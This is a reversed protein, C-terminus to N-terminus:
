LKSRAAQRRRRQPVPRPAEEVPPTAGSETEGAAVIANLHEQSFRVYHGLKTHPIEGKSVRTQLWKKPVGLWEAAADYDRLPEGM